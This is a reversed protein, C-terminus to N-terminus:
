PTPKKEAASHALAMWFTPTTLRPSLNNSAPWTARWAALVPPDVAGTGALLAAMASADESRITGAADAWQTRQPGRERDEFAALAASLAKGNTRIFTEVMGSQARAYLRLVAPRDAWMAAAASEDAAITTRLDAVAAVSRAAIIRGLLARHHAAVAGALGTDAVLQWTGVWTPPASGDGRALAQAFAVRQWLAPSGPLSGPGLAAGDILAVMTRVSDADLGVAADNFARTAGRNWEAQQAAAFAANVPQFAAVLAPRRRYTEFQRAQLVAYVGVLREADPWLQPHVRRDETVRSALGVLDDGTVAQNAEDLFGIHHRRVERQLALPRTETWPNVSGLAGATLRGLRKAGVRDELTALLVQYAGAAWGMSDGDALVASIAALQEDSGESLRPADAVVRTQADWWAGYAESIGGAPWVSPALARDAALAKGLRVLDELSAAGTPLTSLLQRHHAVSEATAQKAARDLEQELAAVTSALARVREEAMPLGGASQAASAINSRLAAVRARLGPAEIAVLQLRQAIGEVVAVVDDRTTVAPQVKGFGRLADVSTQIAGMEATLPALVLVVATARSQLEQRYSAVQAELEAVRARADRVKQPADGFVYVPVDTGFGNKATRKEVFYHEGRYFRGGMLGKPDMNQVVINGSQLLAGFVNADLNPPVSLGWVAVSTETRDTVDGSISFRVAETECKARLEKFQALTTATTAETALLAATTWAHVDIFVAAPPQVSAEASWGASWPSVM